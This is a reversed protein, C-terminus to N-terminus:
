NGTIALSGGEQSYTGKAIVLSGKITHDGGTQTFTGSGGAESGIVEDGMVTLNGSKLNYTGVGEPAVGLSLDGSIVHDGGDQNFDGSGLYGIVEPGIVSMTVPPGGILTYTGISEVGYGLQLSGISVRGGSQEFDGRGGMDGLVIGGPGNPGSEIDGGTITYIGRGTANEGLFMYGSFQFTGGSQNFNGTGTTGILTQYDIKVLTGTGSLEYEASGGNTANISLIYQGGVTLTNASQRLVASNGSGDASIVLAYLTPNDASDYTISGPANLQTLYGEAPVGHSWNDAKSWLGDGAGGTWSTSILIPPPSPAPVEPPLGPGASVAQAASFALLGFCGFVLSMRGRNASASKM